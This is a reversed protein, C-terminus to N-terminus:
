IGWVAYLSYFTDIANNSITRTEASQARYSAGSVDYGSVSAIVYSADRTANTYITGGSVGDWDGCIVIDGKALTLAPFSTSSSKTGSSKATANVGYLSWVIIGLGNPGNATSVVVNGSTGSSVTACYLANTSGSGASGGPGGIYYVQTATVGGITMGTVYGSTTTVQVVVLRGTEASGFSVSSFTYTSQATNDVTSTQFAYSTKAGSAALIGLTLPM